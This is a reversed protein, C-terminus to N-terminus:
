ALGVAAALVTSFGPTTRARRAPSPTGLSVPRKSPAAAESRGVEPAMVSGTQSDTKEKEPKKVKGGDVVAAAAVAVVVIDDVLAEELTAVIVPVEAAKIAAATVLTEEEEVVEEEVTLELLTTAVKKM